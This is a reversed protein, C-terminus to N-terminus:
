PAAVAARYAAGAITRIAAHAAAYDTVDKTMAALVLPANGFPEVIAVDNRTGTVEGTKNAVHTGRPLGAPISSRDTQGLMVRVMARCHKASVITRLDEHAGREIQYLLRAMDQPTSVNDQHRLVATTDLFKRELHTRQMGARRGVANIADVGFHGILMNAATNDSLQIMPVILQEVTFSKGDDQNAMFDSGGILDRARDFAIRRRLTGPHVEENAYATTMVLVKIISATPFSENARYAVLPPGPSLTRAFVGIIGPLRNATTVVTRRLTSARVGAAPWLLVAAVGAPAAALFRARRV